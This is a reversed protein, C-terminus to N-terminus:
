KDILVTKVGWPRLTGVKAISYEGTKEFTGHATESYPDEVSFKEGVTNSVAVEVDDCVSISANLLTVSVVRGLSDVRPVCVIQGYSKVYACIPSDSIYNIARILMDRRSMPIVANALARGKVFWKAGCSTNIVANAVGIRTKYQSSYCDHIPEIKEGEILHQTDKAYYYSDSYPNSSLGDSIFHDVPIEYTVLKYEDAVPKAVAGILDGYGRATLTALATGDLIVPARLLFDMDEDTLQQAAKSSLFYVTGSPEANIPIGLRMLNLSEWIVTDCWVEEPMIGGTALHSKKPQYTCVGGVATGENHEVTKLLYPRYKALIDFIKEHYSLPETRNMLTVSAANCGYATFLAAELATCETSKGYSVFPLNEIEVTRLKVYSPLRSVMFNIKIAKKLMGSPDHDDYFGGGVRSAPAKGTVKYFEDLCAAQSSAALPLTGGQQLGMVTNPAAECLGEVIHRAFQALGEVQFDHYRERLESDGKLFADRFSDFDFSYGYKENFKGICTDCFCFANGQTWLRVDDDVWAIDVGAEGWERMAARVYKIFEDGMFCIRGGSEKGSLAKSFNFKVGDLGKTSLTKMLTPAHGITRSIQMSAILGRRRIQETARRMNPIESRIEDLSCLGYNTALWIEDFVRTKDLTNLLEEIYEYDNHDYHGLRLQLLNKKSM